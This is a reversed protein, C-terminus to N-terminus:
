FLEQCVLLSETEASCGTFAAYYTLGYDDTLYRFPFRDAFLLTKSQSQDVADKYEQDLVALKEEYSAANQRYFEANEPDAEGLVDAITDCFLSANELSLWVHEDYELDDEDTDSQNSGNEEDARATDTMDEDSVHTHGDEDQMGEVIEEEKAKEGLVEM